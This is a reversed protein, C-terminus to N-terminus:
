GCNQGPCVNKWFRLFVSAPEIQLLFVVLGLIGLGGSAAYNGMSVVVLKGSLRLRVVEHWISDSAASCGGAVWSLKAYM